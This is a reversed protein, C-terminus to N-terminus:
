PAQIASQTMAECLKQMGAPIGHELGSAMEGAPVKSQDGSISARQTIRTRGGLDEFTWRFLGVAGPLPFEVVANTEACVEALRWEIRGASRSITTGKSGTAFPGHLAVSEIDADLKWNGVDTWFKWALTRTVPREVAYEFAWFEEM